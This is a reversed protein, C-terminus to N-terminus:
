TAIMPDRTGNRAEKRVCQAARWFHFASWISFCGTIGIAGAIAEAERAPDGGSIWDSVTGVFVPGLGIGFIGSVLLFIAVAMARMRDSALAQMMSFTPGYYFTSAFTLVGLFVFSLNASELNVGVYTAPVALLFVLSAAILSGAPTKKDLWSGLGGGLWSGLVGAIGIMLGLKLGLETYGLGYVRVFLAGYFAAIGFAVFAVVTGGAVLHWYAPKRALDKSVETFTAEGEGREFAKLLKGHPRRDKVTLWMILGVLIGPAGAIVFVTRWNFNEVLWGGGASALFAGIPVASGYIGLAFTRREPPFYEAILSQAPPSNASEGIGVGVRALFLQVFNQAAGCLMTMISWVTIAAAIIWSRNWRDALAALPVALTTYFLSFALGTMLGVQQDTLGMDQKIPEALIALVQRDLFNLMIVLFLVGLVYNARATSVEGLPQEPIDPVNTM